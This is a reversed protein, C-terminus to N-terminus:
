NVRGSLVTASTDAALGPFKAVAGNTVQWTGGGAAFAVPISGWGAGGTLAIDTYGDGNYDGAVARVGPTSAWAGFSGVGYNTVQFTGYNATFAVPISAWGAVGTLALDTLGDKNFDGTLIKVGPSAAWSAFVPEHVEVMDFTGNGYSVALTVQNMGAGGVAALDTMGDRNFDGTVVKANGQAFYAFSFNGAWNSHYVNSNTVNFFGNGYSFAVPLTLWSAPGVLAIDTMGDRNFDGAIPRVGPTAALGAFTSIWQNSITFSGNGQSWAIPMTGWGAGGVLAIDADGDRDFDGVIPTVNASAAWGGFQGVQHNTISFNGNGLSMAVPISAWGAGGVLAYDTLGDRNFDGSLRKVNATRAWTAFDGVPFDTVTFAGNDNSFAVPLTQGSGGLLALDDGRTGPLPTPQPPPPPPVPPLPVPTMIIPPVYPATVNVVADPTTPDRWMSSTIVRLPSNVITQTFIVPVQIEFSWGPDLDTQSGFYLGGFYGTRPVQLCYEGAGGTQGNGIFCQVPFTQSIALVAGPPLFFDFGVDETQCPNRNKVVAHIYTVQNLKPTQAVPDVVYGARSEAGEIEYGTYQCIAETTIGPGDVFAPAASAESALGLGTLVALASLHHPSPALLSHKTM